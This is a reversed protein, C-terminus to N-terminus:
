IIEIIMGDQFILNKEELNKRKMNIMVFQFNKIIKIKNFMFYSGIM